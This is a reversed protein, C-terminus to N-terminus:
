FDQWNHGSGKSKISEPRGEHSMCCPGCGSVHTHAAEPDDLDIEREKLGIAEAKKKLKKHEEPKARELAHPNELWCIFIAKNAAKISALFISCIGFGIVFCVGCVLREPTEVGEVWNPNHIMLGLGVGAMFLGMAVNALGLIIMVMADNSAATMGHHVFLQMVKHGATLFNYGHVGIYVYAYATLYEACKRVCHILCAIIKLVRKAADSTCQKQLFVLYAEITEIVAVLLAGFAISGFSCCWARRYARFTTGMAESGEKNFWWSTTVQAVTCIVVGEYAQQGWFFVLVLGGWEYMYQNEGMPKEHAHEAQNQVYLGVCAAAFLFIWGLQLIVTLLKVTLINPHSLIVKCACELTAGAFEIRHHNFAYYLIIVMAIPAMIYQANTYGKQVSYMSAGMLGASALICIAKMLFAGCCLLIRIWVLCLLLCIVASLYFINFMSIYGAYTGMANQAMGPGYESCLSVQFDDMAEGREEQAKQLGECDLNNM